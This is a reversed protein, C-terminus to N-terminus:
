FHCFLQRADLHESQVAPVALLNIEDPHRELFALFPEPAGAGERVLKEVETDWLAVDALWDGLDRVVRAELARLRDEARQREQRERSKSLRKDFWTARDVLAQILPGRELHIQGVEGQDIRLTLDITPAPEVM